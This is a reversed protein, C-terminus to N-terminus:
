QMICPSPSQPAAPHHSHQPSTNDDGSAPFAPISTPFSTHNHMLVLNIVCLPSQFSYLHAVSIPTFIAVRQKKYVTSNILFDKLASLNINM